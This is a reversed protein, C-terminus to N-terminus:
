SSICCLFLAGCMDFFKKQYLSIKLLKILSYLPISCCDLYSRFAVFRSQYSENFSSMLFESMSLLVPGLSPGAAEIADALAKESNPFKYASPKFSQIWGGKIHETVQLKTWILARQIKLSVTALFMRCCM